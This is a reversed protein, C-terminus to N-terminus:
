LVGDWTFDILDLREVVSAFTKRGVLRAAARDADFEAARVVSQAITNAIFMPIFLVLQAPFRMLMLPLLLKAFHFHRRQAVLSLWRDLRGKGYVSRWLWFNIGRILNVIRSAARPRHLALLGTVVAAFQEVSLSAMTPLGITLVGGRKSAAMRTSCELQITKP